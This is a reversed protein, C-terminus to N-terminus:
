VVAPQTVHALFDTLLELDLEPYVPFRELLAHVRSAAESKAAQDIRYKAKSKGSAAESWKGNILMLRKQSVFNTAKDDMRVSSLVTAM